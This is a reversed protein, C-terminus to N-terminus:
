EGVVKELILKGMEDTKALLEQKIGLEPNFVLLRRETVFGNSGDEVTAVKYYTYGDDNIGVSITEPMTDVTEAAVREMLEEDTENEAYEGIYWDGGNLLVVMDEKILYPVDTDTALSTGTDSENSDQVAVILNGEDDEYVMLEINIEVVVYSVQGAMDSKAYKLLAVGEKKPSVTLTVSGKKDQKEKIEVLDTEESTREWSLNETASGDIFVIVTGDEKETVTVPYAADDHLNYTYDDGRGTLLIVVIAAIVLVLIVAIMWKKITFTKKTQEAM